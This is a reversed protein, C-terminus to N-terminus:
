YAICARQFERLRGELDWVEFIWSELEDVPYPVLNSASEIDIVQDDGLLIPPLKLEKKKSFLSELCILHNGSMGRKMFNQRGIELIGRLRGTLPGNLMEQEIVEMESVVMSQLEPIPPLGASTVVSELWEYLNSVNDSSAYQALVFFAFSRDKGSLLQSAREDIFRHISLPQQEKFDKPLKLQSFVQSPLNLCLSALASSLRYALGIDQIEMFNALCHTAVSYATLEPNYIKEICMSQFLQSEVLLQDADLQKELEPFIITYELEFEAATAITEMLSVISLPVRSILSDEFSKFRTTLFPRDSRLRGDSGYQLGFSYEYKWPVRRWSNSHIAPGNVRYYDECNNRSIESFLKIIRWLEEEDQVYFANFANYISVLNNQGWLTSTHDLWHTIEHIIVSWIKRILIVNKPDKYLEVFDKMEVSNAFVTQTLFEYRGDATLNPFGRWKKLIEELKQGMTKEPTM